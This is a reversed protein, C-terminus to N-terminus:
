NKWYIKLTKYVSLRIQYLLYYFLSIKSQTKRRKILDGFGEKILFKKSSILIKGKELVHVYKIPPLKSSKPTLSYFKADIDQDVRSRDLEWASMGPALLKLLTDRNYLASGIAARYKVGKPIVGIEEEANSKYALPMQPSLKLYGGRQNIVAMIIQNLRDNEVRKSIFVDDFWLIIWEHPIQNLALLLNDSYSKDEGIKIVSLKPYVYDLHNTILYLQCACDPWYKSLCKFFGEWLDSYKDCSVVVFAIASPTVM